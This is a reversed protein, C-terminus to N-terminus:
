AKKSSKRATKKPAPKIVAPEAAVAKPKSTRRPKKPSTAPTAEVTTAEEIKVSNDTETTAVTVTDSTQFVHTPVPDAHPQQVPLVDEITSENNRTRSKYILYGAVVLVLILILFEYQM